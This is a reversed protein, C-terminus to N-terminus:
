WPLMVRSSNKVGLAVPVIVSSTMGFPEAGTLVAAVCDREGDLPLIDLPM